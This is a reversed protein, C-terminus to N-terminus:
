IQAMTKNTLTLAAQDAEDFRTQRGRGFRWRASRVPNVLYLVVAEAEHRPAVRDADPEDGTVAIVEGPSKRQRRRGDRVAPATM